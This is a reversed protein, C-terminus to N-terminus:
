MGEARHRTVVRTRPHAQRAVVSTALAAAVFVLARAAWSPKGQRAAGLIAVLALVTIGGFLILFEGIRFAADDVLGTLQRFLSVSGARAPQGGTGPFPLFCGIVVGAVGIMAVVYGVSSRFSETPM